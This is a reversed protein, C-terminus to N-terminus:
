LSESISLIFFVVFPVSDFDCLSFFYLLFHIGCIVCVLFSKGTNEDPRATKIIFEQTM